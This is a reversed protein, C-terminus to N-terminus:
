AEANLKELLRRIADDNSVFGKEIAAEARAGWLADEAAELQQYREYSIVVAAPKGYKELVIPSSSVQQLCDGIHNRFDTSSATKM